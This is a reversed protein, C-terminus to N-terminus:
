GVLIIRDMEKPTILEPEEICHIESTDGDSGYSKEALLLAVCLTLLKIQCIGLVSKVATM